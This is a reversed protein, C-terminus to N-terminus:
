ADDMFARPNLGGSLIKEGRCSAVYHRIHGELSYLEDWLGECIKFIVNVLNKLIPRTTVM